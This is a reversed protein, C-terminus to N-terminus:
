QDECALDRAKMAVDLREVKIQVYNVCSAGVGSCRITEGRTDEGFPDM